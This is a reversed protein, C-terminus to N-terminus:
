TASVSRDERFLRQIDSSEGEISEVAGSMEWFELPPLPSSDVGVSETDPWAGDTM